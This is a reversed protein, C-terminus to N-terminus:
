HGFEDDLVGEVKMKSIKNKLEEHKELQTTTFFDKRIFGEANKKKCVKVILLIFIILILGCVLYNSAKSSNKISNNNLM